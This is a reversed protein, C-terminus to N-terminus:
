PSFGTELDKTSFKYAQRGSSWTVPTGKKKVVHTKLASLRHFGKRKPTQITLTHFTKLLQAQIKFVLCFAKVSASTEIKQSNKEMSM